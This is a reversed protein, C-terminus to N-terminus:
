APVAEKPEPFPTEKEENVAVAEGPTPASKPKRLPRKLAREERKKERYYDRLEEANRIRIYEAGNVVRYSFEGLRVLRRGEERKSTSRPDPSCLKQIAKEVEEQKTGLIFALLQPNLEVQAGVEKDARMMTIVYPWVAFMVPGSGIMSGKYLSEYVRGFMTGVIEM